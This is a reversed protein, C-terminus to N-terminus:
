SAPSDNFFIKCLEGLGAPLYGLRVHIRTKSSNFNMIQVQGVQTKNRFEIICLMMIEKAIVTITSRIKKLYIIVPRPFPKLKLNFINGSTTLKYLDNDLRTEGSIYL